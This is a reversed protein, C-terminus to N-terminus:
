ELSPITRFGEITAAHSLRRDLSVLEGDSADRTAIASALQIADAAHLGHRLVLREAESAVAGSPEAVVWESRLERLRNVISVLTSESLQNMRFRRTCASACEVPTTWAVVINRDDRYARAMADSSAEEVLLPVLASSDWFRM